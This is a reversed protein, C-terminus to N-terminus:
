PPAGRAGRHPPPPGGRPARSPARPCFGGGPVGRAGGAVSPASAPADAVARGPVARPVETAALRLPDQGAVRSQGGGARAGRGLGSRVSGGPDAVDAALSAVRQAAEGGRSVETGDERGHEG